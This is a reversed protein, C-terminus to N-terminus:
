ASHHLSMLVLRVLLGFSSKTGTAIQAWVAHIGGRSVLLLRARHQVSLSHLLCLNAWSAFLPLLMSPLAMSNEAAEPCYFTRMETQRGAM